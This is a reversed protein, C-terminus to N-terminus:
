AEEREEFNIFTVEGSALEKFLHPMQRKLGRMISNYNKVRFEITRPKLKEFIAQKMHYVLSELQSPTITLQSQSNIEEVTEEYSKSGLDGLNPSNVASWYYNLLLLLDQLNIRVTKPIQPM